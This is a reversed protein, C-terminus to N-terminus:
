LNERSQLESTHEERCKKMRRAMTATYRIDCTPLIIPINRRKWSKWTIGYSNSAAYLCNTGCGVMSCPIDKGRRGTCYGTIATRRSGGFRGTAGFLIICDWATAEWGASRLCTTRDQHFIVSATRRWLPLWGGPNDPCM